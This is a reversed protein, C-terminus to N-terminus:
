QPSSAEQDDLFDGMQARARLEPAVDNARYGGSASRARRREERQAIRQQRRIFWPDDTKTTTTAYAGYWFQTDTVLSGDAFGWRDTLDDKWYQFAIEPLTGATGENGYRERAQRILFANSSDETDTVGYDTPDVAQRTGYEVSKPGNPWSSLASNLTRPAVTEFQVLGCEQNAIAEAADYPNVPLPGLPPPAPPEHPEPVTGTGSFGLKLTTINAAAPTENKSEKGNKPNALAAKRNSKSKRQSM